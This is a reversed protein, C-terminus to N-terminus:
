IARSLTVWNFAEEMARILALLELTDDGFDPTNTTIYYNSSTDNNSSRSSNNNNSNNNQSFSTESRKYLVFRCVPCQGRSKVWPIICDKHFMHNCPTVLVQESPVFAELCITCDKRDDKEDNDDDMAGSGRSSFIGRKFAKKRPYPPRYVQKKLKKMAKKFEDDTLSRDEPETLLGLNWEGRIQPPSDQIFQRLRPSVRNSTVNGGGDGHVVLIRVPSHPQSPFRNLHFPGTRVRQEFLRWPFLGGEEELRHYLPLPIRYQWDRSFDHEPYSSDHENQFRSSSPLALRSAIARM